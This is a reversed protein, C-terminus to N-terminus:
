FRYGIGVGLVWPDMTFAGLEVGASTVNTALSTKKVDLNAYMGSGLAMDLGAQLVLGMSSRTLSVGAPVSVGSFATYNLGAGIYPRVKKGGFYYQLSLNLPLLTIAGVPDGYASLKHEQPPALEVALALTKSFFYSGGLTVNFKNNVGLGQATGDNNTSQFNIARAQVMWPGEKATQAQAGTAAGLLTGLLLPAVRLFFPNM